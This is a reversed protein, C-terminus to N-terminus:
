GKEYQTEDIMKYTFYDTTGGYRSRLKDKQLLYTIIFIYM